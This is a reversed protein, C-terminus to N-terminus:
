IKGGAIDQAHDVVVLRERELHIEAEEFRMGSVLRRAVPRVAAVALAEDAEGVEVVQAQALGPRFLPAVHVVAVDVRGRDVAVVGIDRAAPAFDFQGRSRDADREVSSYPCVIARGPSIRTISRAARLAPPRRRRSKPSISCRCTLRLPGESKTELASRM